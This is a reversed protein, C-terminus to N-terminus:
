NKWSKKWGKWIRDAEKRQTSERLLVFANGQDGRSIRMNEDLYSVSLEGKFKDGEPKYSIPGVSFEKFQVKVKNKTLPSIDARVANRIGLVTEANVARGNEVDILQEPPTNTQFIKPRTKGAISNSTTWVMLWNGPLLPNKLNAGGLISFKEVERVAKLIAENSGGSEVREILDVKARAKLDNAFSFAESTAAISLLVALCACVCRSPMM